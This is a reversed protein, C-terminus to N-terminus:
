RSEKNIRPSPKGDSIIEESVVLFGEPTQAEVQKRAEELTEAEIEIVKESM